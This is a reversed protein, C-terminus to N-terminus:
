GADRPRTGRCRPFQDCGWFESGASAGRRATRLVMLRNCLPCHPTDGPAASEVEVVRIKPQRKRPTTFWRLFDLYIEATAKAFLGLLTGAIIAVLAVPLILKLLAEAFTDLAPNM